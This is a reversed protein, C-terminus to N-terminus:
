IPSEEYYRSEWDWRDFSSNGSGTVSEVSSGSSIAHEEMKEASPADYVDNSSSRILTRHPLKIPTAVVVPRSTPLADMLHDVPAHPHGYQLDFGNVEAKEQSYLEYSTFNDPRLAPDLEFTPVPNAVASLDIPDGLPGYGSNSRSMLSMHELSPMEPIHFASPVHVRPHLM